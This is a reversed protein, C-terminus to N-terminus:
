LVDLHEVPFVLFPIQPFSMRLVVGVQQLIGKCKGLKRVKGVFQEM